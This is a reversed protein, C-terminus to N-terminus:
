VRTTPIEETKSRRRVHMIPYICFMAAAAEVLGAFVQLHWWNIQRAHVNVLAGGIPGGVLIGVGVAAWYMGTRTGILNMSPSLVPVIASPMAVIVSSTLAWFVSWVIIGGVSAVSIWCFLLLASTAVGLACTELPGIKTALVGAGLRGIVSVGNVIAILYFALDATIKTSTVAFLPLFLSPMYYACGGFGGGLMASLFPWDTFVSRDVMRRVMPVKPPPYPLILYSFFYTGLIVFAIARVTWPFGIRVQLQRFMIPYIVGGVGTGSSVIGIVKPRTKADFSMVCAAISPVYLMAGGLGVCVGQSLFVQYYEKSLSTMMLGFVQLLSGCLLLQRHYGHDFLPGTVVGSFLILFGSTTSIWAIESSSKYTLLSQQYYTQFAGFALLLGWTNMFVMFASLAQLGQQLTVHSSATASKGADSTSVSASTLDVEDVATASGNRGTVTHIVKDSM